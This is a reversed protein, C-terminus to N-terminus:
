PTSTCSSNAPHSDKARNRTWIQCFNAKFPKPTHWAEAKREQLFPSHQWSATCKRSAVASRATWGMWFNTLQRKWTEQMPGSLFSKTRQAHSLIARWLSQNQSFPISRWCLPTVIAEESDQLTDANPYVSSTRTYQQIYKLICWIRAYITASYTYWLIYKSICTYGKM